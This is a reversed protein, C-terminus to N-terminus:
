RLIEIQGTGISEDECFVHYVYSGKKLGSITKRDGAKMKYNQVMNGDVDFVFFDIEKDLSQRAVVHMSKNFMDPVLKIANLAKSSKGKKAPKKDDKKDDEYFSKSFKGDVTNAALLKNQTTCLLVGAFLLMFMRAPLAAHKQKM